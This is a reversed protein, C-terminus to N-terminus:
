PWMSAAFENHRGPSGYIQSLADKFVRPGNLKDDKQTTYLHRALAINWALSSHGTGAFESAKSLVLYDVLAQQDPTFSQLL